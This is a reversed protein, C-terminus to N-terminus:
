CKFFICTDLYEKDFYLLDNCKGYIFLYVWDRKRDNLFYLCDIISYWFTSERISNINTLSCYLGTRSKQFIYHRGYLCEYNKAYIVCM